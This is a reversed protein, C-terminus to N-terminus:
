WVRDYAGELDIFTTACYQGEHKAFLVSLVYYMLCQVLSRNKRYAYQHADWLGNKDMFGVLRHSIVREHTKGICSSLSISRYAKSTNYDTKADKALYTRNERKNIDPFVGEDFSVKIAHHVAVNVNYDAKQVLIPLIRDPGPAALPEMVDLAADSERLSIQANYDLEDTSSPRFFEDALLRPVLDDVHDKWETDCSIGPPPRIHQDILIKNIGAEEFKVVEKKNIVTKLPQIAAKVGSKIRNVKPWLKSDRTNLAKCLEIHHDSKAQNYLNTYEKLALDLAIQSPTDSRVKFRKRAQRVNYQLAKLEPTFFGKSYTCIRRSELCADAADVIKDVLNEMVGNAALMSTKNPFDAFAQRTHNKWEPWDANRIDWRHQPRQYPTPFSLIIPLHDSGLSITHDVQWHLEPLNRVLTVDPASRTENVRRTYSGNNAVSQRFSM